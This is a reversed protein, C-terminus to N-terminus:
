SITDYSIFRRVLRGDEICVVYRTRQLSGGGGNFSVIASSYGSGGATVAVATVAGGAVTATATAGTGDGSIAVTPTSTYTGGATVAISAIHNSTITATAKAGGGSCSEPPAYVEVCPNKGVPNGSNSLDTCGSIAGDQHQFEEPEGGLPQSQVRTTQDQGDYRWEIVDYLGCEGMACIGNLVIDFSESRYDIFDQGLQAAVNNLANSNTPTPNGVTFLALCTDHFIHTSGATGPPEPEIDPDTTGIEHGITVTVKYFAAVSDSPAGSCRRGRFVTVCKQPLIPSLDRAM